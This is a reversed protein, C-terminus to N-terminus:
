PSKCSFDGRGATHAAAGQYRPHDFTLAADLIFVVGPEELAFDLVCSNELYIAALDAFADQYDAPPTRRRSAREHQPGRAIPRRPTSDRVV